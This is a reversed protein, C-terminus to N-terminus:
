MLLEKEFIIIQLLPVTLMEELKELDKLATEAMTTGKSMPKPVMMEEVWKSEGDWTGIGKVGLEAFDPILNPSPSV